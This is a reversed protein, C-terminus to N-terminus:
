VHKILRGRLLLSMDHAASVQGILPFWAIAPFVPFPITDPPSVSSTAPRARVSISICFAPYDKDEKKCEEFEATIIEAGPSLQM